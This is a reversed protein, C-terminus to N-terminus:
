GGAEVLHEASFADPDDLRWDLGWPRVGEGFTEHPGDASLAEVAEEAETAKM